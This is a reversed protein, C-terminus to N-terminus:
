EKDCVKAITKIRNIKGSATRVFAPVPIIEKPCEHKLLRKKILDMTNTVANKEYDGEMLLVVKQILKDDPLSGIFYDGDVIDSIASEIVEPQIKKGGSNIINDHRGGIRVGGNSNIEAVDNTVLKSVGISPADIVLRSDKDISFRVGPLPIFYKNNESIKRLGVHTITETMGYSHWANIRNNFILREEIVESVPAGGILLMRIKYLVDPKNKLLEFVQNPVMSCFDVSQNSIDPLSSPKSLVLNLEGAVARVIMMKGAIYDAPLCLWVTNGKTLGFYQITAKASAVAYEKRIRVPKPKGTSGSTSVVIYERNNYWESIFNYVSKEWEKTTNNQLMNTCRERIGEPSYYKGDITIGNNMM